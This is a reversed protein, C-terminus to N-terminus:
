IKGILILNILYLIKFVFYCNFIVLLLLAAYARFSLNSKPKLFTKLFHTDENDRNIPFLIIERSQEIEEPIADVIFPLGNDFNMKLSKIATQYSSNPSELPELKIQIIREFIEFKEDKLPAFIVCDKFYIIITNSYLQIPAM